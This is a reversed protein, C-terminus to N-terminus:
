LSLCLNIFNKGKKWGYPFDSLGFRYLHSGASTVLVEPHLPESPDFNNAM